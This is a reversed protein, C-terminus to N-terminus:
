RFILYMKMKLMLFITLLRCFRWIMKSRFLSYLKLSINFFKFTYSVHIHSAEDTTPITALHDTTDISRWQNDSNEGYCDYEPNYNEYISYDVPSLQNHEITKMQSYEPICSYQQDEYENYWNESYYDHETNDNVCNISTIENPQYQEELSTDVTSVTSTNNLEYTTYNGIETRISIEEDIISQSEGIINNTQQKDWRSKKKKRLRNDGNSKYDESSNIEAVSKELQNWDFMWQSIPEVKSDKLNISANQSGISDPDKKDSSVTKVIDNDNPLIVQNSELNKEYMSLDTLNTFNIIEEQAVINEVNVSLKQEEYESDSSSTETRDFSYEFQNKLVNDNLLLENKYQHKENNILSDNELFNESKGEDSSHESTNASPVSSNDSYEEKSDKPSFCQTLVVKNNAEVDIKPAIPKIVNSKKKKTQPCIVVKPRDVFKLLKTEDIEPKIEEKFLKLDDEIKDMKLNNSKMIKLPSSFGFVFPTHPSNSLKKLNIKVKDRYSISENVPEMPKIFTPPEDSEELLKSKTPKLVNNLDNILKQQENINKKTPLPIHPLDNKHEFAGECLDSKNSIISSDINCKEEYDFSKEVINKNLVVNKVNEDIMELKKTNKIKNIHNVNLSGSKVSENKSSHSTNSNDRFRLSKTKKIKKNKNDDLKSIKNKSSSSINKVDSHLVVGRMSSKNNINWDNPRQGFFHESNKEKKNKKYKLGGVDETESTDSTKSKKKSKKKSVRDDNSDISRKRSSKKKKKKKKESNESKLDYDVKSRKTTKEDDSIDLDLKRKSSKKGKKNKKDNEEDIKFYKLVEGVTSDDCSLSQNGVRDNKVLKTFTEKLCEKVKELEDDNEENTKYDKKEHKRKRKKQRPEESDSRKKIEVNFAKEILNLISNGNKEDESKKGNNKDNKRKKKSNDKNCKRKKDKSKKKKKKKEVTSTSDTTDSGSDESSSDSDSETDQSSESSSSKCKKKKIKRKKLKKTKKSSSKKEKRLKNDTSSLSKIFSRDLSEETTDHLSVSEDSSKTSTDDQIEHISEDNLSALKTSSNNGYENLITNFPVDNEDSKEATVIKLFEEYETDLKAHVQLEQFPIPTFSSTNVVIKTEDEGIDSVIDMTEEQHCVNNEERNIIIANNTNIEVNQSVEVDMVKDTVPSGDYNDWKSPVTPRLDVLATDDNDFRSKKTRKSTTFENLLADQDIEVNPDDKVQTVIFNLKPWWGKFPYINEDQM